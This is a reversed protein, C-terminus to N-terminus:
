IRWKRTSNGELALSGPNKGPIPIIRCADRFDELFDSFRAPM